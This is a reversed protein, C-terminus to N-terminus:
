FLFMQNMNNMALIKENIKKIYYNFDVQLEQPTKGDPTNYICVPTEKLVNEMTSKTSKQKYLYAGKKSVFVRNLQQVKIGNHYVSYQRDIKKGLCFDFINTHNKVTTAVPINNIYFEKLAIPIILFENSGELQKEYVYEGKVKVKDNDTVAIYDNVSKYNIFKYTDTEWVLDFYKAHKELLETYISVKDNPVIVELGDTNKSKISIGHEILMETMKILQLQGTIRLGLAQEPAYLWSYQNDILGSFANLILKLFTDKVKEKDKKAQFRQKKIDSYINLMITGLEPSVYGYNEINTPYMSGIDQTYVTSITNSSYKDCDNVSHIGGVGLTIKINSGDPNRVIIEESFTNYSNCIRDYLEQFQQTKFLIDPIFDGLKINSPKIYRRDRVQKKYDYLRIGQPLTSKCYSDLLLESAIKPADWSLCDLGYEKRIWFRLNIEEKKKLALEKTVNVDQKVYVRVLDIEDDTLGVKGHFVPMEMIDMDLNYAYFKLSIKKSIRLGKSILLFVDIEEYLKHYKYKSFEHFNDNSTIIVQAARHIEACFDLNSLRSLKNYQQIIYNTIVSDFHIGNFTIIRLKQKTIFEYIEKLENKNKSVEFIICEDSYFDYFCYLTVELYTEIDLIYTKM